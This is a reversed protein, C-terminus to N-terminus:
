NTNFTVCTSVLKHLGYGTKQPPFVARAAFIPLLVSSLYRSEASFSTRTRVFICPPLPACIFIRSLVRSGM